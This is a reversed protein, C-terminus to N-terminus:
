DPVCQFARNSGGTATSVCHMGDPCEASSCGLLLCVAGACSARVTGTDPQECRNSGPGSNQCNSTCMRILDGSTTVGSVCLLRDDCQGTDLCAGYLAGAPIPDPQSGAEGTGANTSGAAGAGSAGATSGATGDGAASGAEGAAGSSGAAGDGAGGAGSRGADAGASGAGSETGSQGGSSDGASGGSGAASRGSEGATGGRTGASAGGSGAVKGCQCEGSTGNATCVRVSPSGDPCECLVSRGEVCVADEGPLASRNSSCAVLLGLVLSAAIGLSKM